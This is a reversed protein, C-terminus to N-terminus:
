FGVGASLSMSPQWADLPTVLQPAYPLYALSVGIVAIVEFQRSLPILARLAVTGELGSTSQRTEDTGLFQFGGADEGIQLEAFGAGLQPELWGWSTRESLITAKARFHAIEPANEGHLFGSGNGCGEISLGRLPAIELCMETREGFTNAGGGVRFNVYDRPVETSGAPDALASVPVLLVVLALSRVRKVNADPTPSAM